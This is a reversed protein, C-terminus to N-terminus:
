AWTEFSSILMQLHFESMDADRPPEPMTDIVGDWYGDGYGDMYGGIYDESLGEM